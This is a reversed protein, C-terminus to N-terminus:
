LGAHGGGDWFRGAWSTRGELNSLGIAFQIQDLQADEVTIRFEGGDYPKKKRPSMAAVINVEPAPKGWTSPTHTIVGFGTPVWAHTFHLDLYFRQTVAMKA